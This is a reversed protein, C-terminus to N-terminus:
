GSVLWEVICGDGGVTVLRNGEWHLERIAGAHARYASIASDSISIELVGTETGQALLKGERSAACPYVQSIQRCTETSWVDPHDAPCEVGTDVQWYKITGAKAQARLITGSENWDVAMIEKSNTQVTRTLAYSPTKTSHLYIVGDASIAALYHGTPSYRLITLAESCEKKVRLVGNLQNASSRVTFHGDFHGVAVHGQPSHSVSIAETGPKIGVEILGSAVCKRQTLDWNKVKNDSGVSVLTRKGVRAAAVRVGAVHGDMIVVRGNRGFELLIGEDTGCLIGSSSMDLSLPVGPTEILRLEQFAASLVHICKDAGGVLLTDEHFVLAQVSCGAKLVQHSQNLIGEKCVYIKGEQGGALCGIATWQVVLLATCGAVESCAFSSGAATWFSFHSNGVTCFSSANLSWSLSLPRGSKGPTSFVLTGSLVEFVAISGVQDIVALQVANCSFEMQDVGISDTALHITLAVELFKWICITPQSGIDGTAIISRERDITLATIKGLHGSAVHVEGGGLYRQTNSSLTMLVGLSASPYVVLDVNGMYHLSNRATNCGYIYDLKAAVPGAPASYLSHVSSTYTPIIVVPDSKLTSNSKGCGM